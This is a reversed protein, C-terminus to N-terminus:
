LPNAGEKETIGLGSIRAKKTELFLRLEFVYLVTM